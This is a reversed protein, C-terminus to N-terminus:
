RRKHKWHYVVVNGDVAFRRNHSRWNSSKGACVEFINRPTPNERTYEYPHTHTRQSHRRHITYNSFFSAHHHHLFPAIINLGFQISIFHVLLLPPFFLEALLNTSGHTEKRVGELPGLALWPLAWSKAPWLGYFAWDLLVCV